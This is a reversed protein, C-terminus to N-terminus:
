RDTHDGVLWCRISPGPIRCRLQPTTKQILGSGCDHSEPSMRLQAKVLIVIERSAAFLPANESM